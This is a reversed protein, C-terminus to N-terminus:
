LLHGADSAKGVGVGECLLRCVVQLSGVGVRVRGAHLASVDPGFDMVLQRDLKNRTEELDALASEESWIRQQM